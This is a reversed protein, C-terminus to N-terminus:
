EDLAEPVEALVHSALARRQHRRQQQLQKRAGAGNPASGGGGSSHAKVALAIGSAVLLVAANRARRSGGGGGRQVHGHGPHASDESGCESGGSSGAWRASRGRSLAASLSAASDSHRLHGSSSSCAPPNPEAGAGYAQPDDETPAVRKRRAEVYVPVTSALKKVFSWMGHKVAFRALNEPIKFQEHHLLVTECAPTDAGWPDAVTRSRWMSWFVDM